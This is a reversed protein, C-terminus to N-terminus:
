CCDPIRCSCLYIRYRGWHCLGAITMAELVAHPDGELISRDMFAGPGGEDAVLSMNKIVRQSVRLEWKLGTTFGGGGRGRLGSKKVESIVEEPKMETLVKALAM